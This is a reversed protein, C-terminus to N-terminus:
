FKAYRRIYALKDEALGRLEDEHVRGERVLEGFVDPLVSYRYDFKDDIEKRRTTLFSELEWLDSPHEITAAMRQTKQIVEHLEKQLAREFAKRAIAKETQSWRLNRIDTYTDPAEPQHLHAM